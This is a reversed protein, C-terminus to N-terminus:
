RANPDSKPWVKRLQADDARWSKVEALLSDHEQARTVLWQWPVAARDTAPLAPGPADALSAPGIHGSATTAPGSGGPCAAKGPGRLGLDRADAAIRDNEERNREKLKAAISATLADTKAKLDTAKAAIRQFSAEDARYLKEFQGSQKKWHRAEGWQHFAVFTLGAAVAVGVWGQVDLAAFFRKLVAGIDKLLNLGGLALEMLFATM